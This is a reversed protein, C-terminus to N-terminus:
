HKNEPVRSTKLNFQHTWYGQSFESGNYIKHSAAAKIAMVVAGAILRIKVKYYSNM